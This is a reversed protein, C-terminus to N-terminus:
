AAAQNQAPQKGAAKQMTEYLSQLESVEDVGLLDMARTLMMGTADLLQLTHELQPDNGQRMALNLEGIRARARDLQERTQAHADREAEYQKRAHHASANAKAYDRQWGEAQIQQNNM